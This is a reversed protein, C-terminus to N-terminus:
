SEQKLFEEVWGVLHHYDCSGAHRFRVKGARDLLLFTPFLGFEPIQKTVEPTTLACRYNIQKQKVFDKLRHAGQMEWALGVVEVGRPAYETQLRILHPITAVCPICWTGWIDVLVVKGRLDALALRKGDLDKLDFTYPFLVKKKKLAERMEQRANLQREGSARELVAVIEQYGKEKRIKDLVQDHQMHELDSFGLSVARRLQRIADVKKDMLSFACAKNYACAALWISGTTNALIMEAERFSALAQEPQGAKIQECGQLVLPRASEEQAKQSSEKSPEVKPSKGKLMHQDLDVPNGAQDVIRGDQWLCMDKKTAGSPIVNIAVVAGNPVEKPIFSKEQEHNPNLRVSTVQYVFRNFDRKGDAYHVKQGGAAEVPVWLNDIKRFRAQEVISDVTHNKELKYNTGWIDGPRRIAKARALHYGHAPDLWVTYRGKETDADIVYCPSKDKGAPAKKDRVTLKKAQRLIHDFRKTDGCIYGQTIAGPFYSRQLQEVGEALKDAPVQMDRIQLLGTPFAYKPDANKTHIFKYTYKGDWLIMRLYAEQKALKTNPNLQGWYERYARMRRGDFCNESVSHEDLNVPWVNNSGTRHTYSKIIFNELQKQTESFKDLLTLAEPTDTAAQMSVSVTLLVIVMILLVWGFSKRQALDKGNLRQIRSLLDSGNAASALRSTELRLEAIRALARAFSIRNGLAKAALDDCCNERERRIQHSIWWVAPHFFGLTEVATQLLNVLNDYRRVHALEHLLIAKLQEPAIGTLLSGPILIVPRLWGIVVPIDLLKTERFKLKQRVSFERSMEKLQAQRDPSLARCGRRKLRHLHMCGGLHWFSIVAVGLGWILVVYPFIDELFLEVSQAWSVSASNIDSEGIAIEPELFDTWEGESHERTIDVNATTEIQQNVGIGPDEKEEGIMNWTLIPAAVLLIMAVCSLGYRLRATARRFVYLAMALLLAIWLGQWFFHILTWGLTRIFEPSGFHELGAM